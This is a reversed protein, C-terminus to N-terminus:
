KGELESDDVRFKNNSLLEAVWAKRKESRKIDQMRREINPRAEGFSIVKKVSRGGENVNRTFMRDVNKNYYDRIDQPTVTIDALVVESEYTGALNYDIFYKLETKFKEDKDIGRRKAEQMFVEERLFRRSLERKMKEDVPMDMRGMKRRKGLIFDIIKNLDAVKFETAAVQYVIANPDFLNVTDINNVVDKAKMLRDQLRVSSNYMLRRRLGMQQNKDEVVDEINDATVKKKEDVQIIYVANGIRVPERTYEGEKVAFVAKSFDEGRMGGIIYGIDGGKRKSFDDSHKEALEKFTTGKKLEEIIAKAKESKEKFAEELEADTLKQRNNKEIKYNKVTLKIIKARAVDESFDGETSIIKGLYQSFFGRTALNQIFKFDDKKDFGAKKAERVVMKEVALRELHNKQESKKKIIADKAMKRADLWEYFEGRTIQGDNYTALVDGSRKCGAAAVVIALVSVAVISRKM